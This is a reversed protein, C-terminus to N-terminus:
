SSICHYLVMFLTLVSAIIAPIDVYVIGGLFGSFVGIQEHIFSLWYIVLDSPSHLLARNLYYYFIYKPMSVRLSKTCPIDYVPSWLYPINESCAFEATLPQHFCHLISWTCHTFFPNTPICSVMSRYLLLDIIM